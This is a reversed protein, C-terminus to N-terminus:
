RKKRAKPKTPRKAKRRAPPKPNPVKLLDAVFEELPMPPLKIPKEARGMLRGDESEPLPTIRM